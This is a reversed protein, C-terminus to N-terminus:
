FFPVKLLTSNWGAGAGGAVEIIYQVLSSACADEQERVHMSAVATCTYINCRNVVGGSIFEINRKTIQFKASFNDV